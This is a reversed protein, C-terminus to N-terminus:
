AFRNLDYIAVEPPERGALFDLMMRAALPAFIYGNRRMATAVLVGSTLDRGIMPWGDPSAARIGVRPVADGANVDLVRARVKLEEVVDADVGPDDRGAQMSAGFKGHGGYGAYYGAEARTVGYRESGGVDLLHGKIPALRALSPVQPALVHSDFGAAVIVEDARLTEGTALKVGTADIGTVQGTIQSHTALGGRLAPLLAAAEVLWDGEVRVLECDEPDFGAAVIGDRDLWALGAGTAELSKLHAPSAPRDFRYLTAGRRRADTLLRKTGETWVDFLDFWAAQAGTLRRFSMAPDSDNMAELAPAIMGAAIGSATDESRDRAILTVKHGAGQAAVAICLGVIGGGVIIVSKVPTSAM